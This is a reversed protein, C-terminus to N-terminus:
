SAERQGGRGDRLGGGASSGRSEYWSEVERPDEVMRCARMKGKGRDDRKESSYM